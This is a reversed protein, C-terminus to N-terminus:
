HYPSWRSRCLTSRRCRWIHILSLQQSPRVVAHRHSKKIVPHFCSDLCFIHQLHLHAALTLPVLGLDNLHLLQRCERWCMVNANICKSIWWVIRVLQLNWFCEVSFIVRHSHLMRWAIFIWLMLSWDANTYSMPFKLQCVCSENDYNILNVLNWCSDGLNITLTKKITVMLHWMLLLFHSLWCDIIVCKAPRTM